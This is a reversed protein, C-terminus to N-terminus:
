RYIQTIMKEIPKIQREVLMKEWRHMNEQKIYVGPLKVLEKKSTDVLGTWYLQGTSYAKTGVYIIMDIQFKQRLGEIVEPHPADYTAQGVLLLLQTDEMEEVIEKLQKFYERELNKQLETVVGIRVGRFERSEPLTAELGEQSMRAATKARSVQAIMKEIPGIQESLLKKGVGPAPGYFAKWGMEIPDLEVLRSAPIDVLKTYANLGRTVAGHYVGKVFILMDIQFMQRLTRATDIDLADYSAPYSISVLDSDWRKEVLEELNAFYERGIDESLDTLLGIRVKEFPRAEAPVTPAAMKQRSIEDIMKQIPGLQKSVLKREWRVDLGGLGGLGVPDLETLTQASLDILKTHGEYGRGSAVYNMVGIVMDIRHKQKLNRATDLDISQYSISEKLAIIEVSPRKGLEDTLYDIYREFSEATPDLMAGAFSTLLGVRIKELARPEGVTAAAAIKARSIEEAMREIQGIQKSVLKKEWGPRFEAYGAGIDIPELEILKQGSIDILRTIGEFRLGPRWTSAVGILMDIKYRQSLIKATDLDLDRYHITDPLPIVERGPKQGIEDTLLGVYNQKDMRISGGTLSTVLGIRVKESTEPRPTSRAGRRVATFELKTVIYQDEPSDTASFFQIENKGRRFEKTSMEIEITETLTLTTFYEQPTLFIGLDREWEGIVIRPWSHHTADTTVSLTVREMKFFRDPLDVRITAVDSVLIDEEFPRRYDKWIGEQKIGEEAISWGITGAVVVFLTVVLIQGWGYVSLRKRDSM